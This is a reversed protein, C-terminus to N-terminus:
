LYCLDSVSMKFIQLNKFTQISDLLSGLDIGKTWSCRLLIEVNGYCQTCESDADPVRSPRRPKQEILTLAM